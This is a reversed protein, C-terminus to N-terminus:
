EGRPKILAVLGVAIGVVGLLRNDLSDQAASLNEVPLLGFMHLLLFAALIVVVWQSLAEIELRKMLGAVRAIMKRQEPDATAEAAAMQVEEATFM